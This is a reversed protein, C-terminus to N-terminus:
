VKGNTMKRVHFPSTYLSNVLPPMQSVPTMARMACVQSVPMDIDQIRYTKPHGREESLEDEIGNFVVLMSVAGGESVAEVFEEFCGVEEEGDDEEDEEEQVAAEDQSGPVVHDGCYGEVEGAEEVGLEFGVDLVAELVLGGEAEFGGM